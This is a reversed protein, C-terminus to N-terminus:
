LNGLEFCYIELCSTKSVDGMRMLLSHLARPDKRHDTGVQVCLLRGERKARRGLCHCGPLVLTTIILHGARYRQAGRVIGVSCHVSGSSEPGM